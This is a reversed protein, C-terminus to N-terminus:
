KKRWVDGYAPYCKSCLSLSNQKNNKMLNRYSDLIQNCNWLNYLSDKNINGINVMRDYDSCCASVDGDWDVSLKQWFEKCIIYEGISNDIRSFNTKGVSVNDIYKEWYEIFKSRNNWDKMSITTNIAIFPKHSLFSRYRALNKINKDLIDYMKNNRYKEYGEKDIGQMSFIISDLKLKVLQKLITNDLLLGNTTIHLPLKNDKVIKIYKLIDPHLFPEGWRIFRIGTGYKKCENIIKNFTNLDMFGQERKMFQRSCFSCALNCKNTLEIDIIYPFDPPLNKDSNMKDYIEKFVNKRKM